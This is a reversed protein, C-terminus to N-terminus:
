TMDTRGEAHFLECGVPRIKILNSIKAKKSFRDRFNFDRKFAVLIVPVKCSSTKVNIIMDRQSRRLILFTEFLLRSLILVCIKHENDKNRFVKLEVREKVEDSSSLPHNVGRKPRKVGPFSIRYGKYLISHPGCPRHPRIRFIEGWRSDIGPGELRYLTGVGVSSDRDM